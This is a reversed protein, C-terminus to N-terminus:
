PSPPKREQELVLRLRRALDQQRYPKHLLEVGSALQGHRALADDTYGSVYLVKLGPHLERAAAALQPGSMGPMIVDTFLLDPALGDRLLQLAEDPRAAETVRYGLARQQGAAYQRVLPDDETLLVAEDGRPLPGALRDPKPATQQPARPLYVRVTTGAGPESDIAVHGGSQLIFGYVMPLGLPAHHPATM